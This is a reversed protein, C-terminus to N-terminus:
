PLAQPRVVRALTVVDVAAAGSKRLQRACANVTAGTTLVDDVLLIHSGGVAAELGPRIRFANRVNARRETPGLGAQSPTHRTRTMLDPMSQTGSLEALATAMLAAQNFRRTFLRRRHLPVPVIMDADRLLPSAIRHLWAAFMPVADHRDGHKLAMVLRASGDAYQM